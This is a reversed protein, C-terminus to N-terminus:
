VAIRDKSDSDLTGIYTVCIKGNPGAILRPSEVGFQGADFSVFNYPTAIDFVASTRWSSDTATGGAFGAGKNADVYANLHVHSQEDRDFAPVEVVVTGAAPSAVDPCTGWGSVHSELVYNTFHAGADTSIALAVTVGSQPDTPMSTKSFSGA